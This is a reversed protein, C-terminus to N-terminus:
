LYLCMPVYVCLYISTHTHMLIGLNLLHRVEPKQEGVRQIRMVRKNSKNKKVVTKGKSVFASGCKPVTTMDMPLYFTWGM